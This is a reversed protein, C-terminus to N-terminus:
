FNVQTKKKNVTVRMNDVAHALHDLKTSNGLLWENQLAKYVNYRKKPDVVLFKM